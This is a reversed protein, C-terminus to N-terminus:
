NKRRFYEEKLEKREFLKIRMCKDKHNVIIRIIIIGFIKLHTLNMSM